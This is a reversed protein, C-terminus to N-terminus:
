RRRREIVEQLYKLRGYLISGPKGLSNAKAPRSKGEIGHCTVLLKGRRVGDRVTDFCIQVVDSQELIKGGQMSIPSAGELPRM